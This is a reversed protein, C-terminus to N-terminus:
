TSSAKALRGYSGVEVLSGSDGLELYSLMQMM